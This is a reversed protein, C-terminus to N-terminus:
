KMVKKFLFKKGGHSCKGEPRPKFDKESEYYGSTLFKTVMNGRCSYVNDKSGVIRLPIGTLLGGFADDVEKQEADTFHSSCPKCATDNVGNLQVGLNSGMGVMPNIRENGLEVWNTHSYFDQVTHLMEGLKERVDSISASDSQLQRLLNKRDKLLKINTETIYSEIDFHETPKM